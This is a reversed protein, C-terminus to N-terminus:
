AATTEPAADVLVTNLHYVRAFDIIKAFSEKVYLKVDPSADFAFADINEVDDRFYAVKLNECYYFAKAAITTLTKPLDVQVLNHCEGFATEGIETVASKHLFAKKISSGAFANKEVKTLSAPFNVVTITKVQAFAEEGIVTVAKGDIEAPIDLEVTEEDSSYKTIKLTGDDLEAYSYAGSVAEKKGCSAFVALIAAAALIVAIIKKM